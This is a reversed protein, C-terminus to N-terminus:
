HHKPEDSRKQKNEMTKFKNELEKIKTSLEENIAHVDRFAEITLAEFGRIALNRYGDPNKGPQRSVDEISFKSPLAKTQGSLYAVGSMRHYARRM